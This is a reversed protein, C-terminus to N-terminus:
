KLSDVKAITFKTNFINKFNLKSFFHLNTALRLNLGKKDNYIPNFIVM